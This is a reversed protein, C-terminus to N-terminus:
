SLGEKHFDEGEAVERGGVKSRQEFFLDGRPSSQQRPIVTLRGLHNEAIHLRLNKAIISGDLAATNEAVRKKNILLALTHNAVQKNAVSAARRIPEFHLLAKESMDDFRELLRRSDMADFRLQQRVLGAFYCTREQRLADAPM